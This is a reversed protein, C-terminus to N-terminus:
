YASEDSDGRNLDDLAHLMAQFEHWTLYQGKSSRWFYIRRLPVGSRESLWQPKVAMLSKCLKKYDALTENLYM